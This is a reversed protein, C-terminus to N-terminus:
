SRETEVFDLREYLRRAGDNSTDVDLTLATAGHAVARQHTDSLLVSGIGGCRRSEDVGLATLHWDGSKHRSMFRLVPRALASFLAFRLLSRGAPHKRSLMLSAGRTAANLPVTRVRSRCMTMKERDGSPVTRPAAARDSSTGSEALMSTVCVVDSRDYETMGQNYSRISWM